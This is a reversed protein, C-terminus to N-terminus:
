GEWGSPATFQGLRVLNKPLNKAARGVCVNRKRPQAPKQQVQAKALANSATVVDEPSIPDLFDEVQLGLPALGLGILDLLDAM